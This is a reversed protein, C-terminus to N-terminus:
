NEVECDSKGKWRFPACTLFFCICKCVIHYAIRRCFKDRGSVNHSKQEKWFVHM